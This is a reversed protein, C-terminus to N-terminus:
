KCSGFGGFGMIEAIQPDIGGEMEAIEQEHKRATKEDMRKKKRTENDTNQIALRSEYDQVATTTPGSRDERVKRKLMDIREKVKDVGAREVRM